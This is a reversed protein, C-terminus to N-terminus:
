GEDKEVTVYGALGSLIGEGIGEVQDLEEVSRFPGQEERYDLIARARKEGIGPLRQLDYFDATNLDIVEGELLSEPRGEEKEPAAAAEGSGAERQVTTVRYPAAASRQAFFWGGIFLLFGATVALVTKEYRSIGNM